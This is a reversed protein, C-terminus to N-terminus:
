LAKTGDEKLEHLFNLRHCNSDEFAWVMAPPNESVQNAKIFDMAALMIGVGCNSSGTTGSKRPQKPMGFRTSLTPRRWSKKNLSQVEPFMQAMLSILFQIMEVLHEPPEYGLGEDYWFTLSPLHIRLLGWHNVM